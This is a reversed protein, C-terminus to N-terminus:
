HVDTYSNSLVGPFKNMNGLVISQSNTDIKNFSKSYNWKPIISCASWASGTDFCNEGVWCNIYSIQSDSLVTNVNYDQHWLYLKHGHYIIFSTDNVKYCFMSDLHPYPLSPNNNYLTDKTWNFIFRAPLSTSGSSSATKSSKTCNVLLIALLIYIINKM